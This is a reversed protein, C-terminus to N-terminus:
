LIEWFDDNLIKAFEGPIDEANQMLSMAFKYIGEMRDYDNNLAKPIYQEEWPRHDVTIYPISYYELPLQPPGAVYLAAATLTTSISFKSTNFTSYEM